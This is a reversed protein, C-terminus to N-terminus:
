INKFYRRFVVLILKIIKKNDYNIEVEYDLFKIARVLNLINGCEYDIITIKKM